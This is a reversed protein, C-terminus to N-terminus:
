GLQHQLWQKFDDRMPRNLEHAAEYERYLPFVRLSELYSRADRAFHIGLKQDKVGHSVFAHMRSLADGSVVWPRIESLIRGSLIGFGAFKEPATLAASASMIGGQSFGAIWIRRPDVSYAQPLVDVFELLRHRAADAQEANIVPGSAGFAVQFWGFQAPGFALPARVLIVILRPDQELAFDILGAENAGVGHLLLLCPANDNDGVTNRRVRHKLRLQPADFLQELENNM